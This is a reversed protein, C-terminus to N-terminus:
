AARSLWWVAPHYFLTEVLRQLLNTWQDWRRLHALEHAIVAELSEPTMELVWAAPLLM